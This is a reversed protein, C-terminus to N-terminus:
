GMLAGAPDKAIDPYHERMLAKWTSPMDDFAFAKQGIGRSVYNGTRDGMELWEPWTNVDNFIWESPPNPVDPDAVQALSGKYTSWDNVRLMRGQSGEKPIMSLHTDSRLWLADGVVWAPGLSASTTVSMGPRQLPEREEGQSTYVRKSPRPKGYRVDVTNGTFPNKFKELYSNTELDTYFIASIGTVEFAGDELDRTTAFSGVHMEWLPTFVTDVLGFRTARLWMFTLSGDAAFALKRYAKLVDDQNSPDFPETRAAATRSGTVLSSVSAAGLGGLMTRRKM